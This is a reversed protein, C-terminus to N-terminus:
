RTFIARTLQGSNRLTRSGATDAACRRPRGRSATGARGHATGSLQHRVAQSARDHEAHPHPPRTFAGDPAYHRFRTYATKWPGHREPLDRRSVGTRIRHVPGNTVQRGTTARM